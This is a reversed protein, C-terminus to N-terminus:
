PMFQHFDEKLFSSIKAIAEKIALIQPDDNNNADQTLNNLLEILTVTISTVNKVFAEKEEAVAEIMYGMAEITRARLNKQAMNQNGVVTLIELMMPMFDNYYKAFDKDIISALCSILSMVEEQLPEYNNTMAQKLLSVLTLFLDKSYIEMIKNANTSEDEENDDDANIFGRVFNIMTSVAQTKMKLLEESNMMKIFAPVLDKHFKKQAKPSLETLLLATCSLGAYRVRTNGDMLGSCAMKMAEEMNKTMSEKCSEAILGLVMYGAQRQKWDQANSLCTKILPATIAM